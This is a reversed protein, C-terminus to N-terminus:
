NRNPVNLGMEIAKKYSKSPDSFGSKRKPKEETRVIWFAMLLIFSIFLLVIILKVTM